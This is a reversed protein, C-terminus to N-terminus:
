QDGVNTVIHILRSFNLFETSMHLVRIYILIANTACIASCM